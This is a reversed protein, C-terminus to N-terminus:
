FRGILGATWGGDRPRAIVVSKRDTSYSPAVFYIVVATVAAAGTLGWSVNILNQDRSVKDADAQTAMGQDRLEKFDSEASLGIKTLVISTVLGVGTAAAAIKSGLPIRRNRPGGEAPPPDTMPIEATTAPTPVALEAAKLKPIEVRRADREDGVTVTTSWPANGPARATITYTGGDIPLAKNWAGRDVADADRLVELGGVQADDLVAITLTSLRPELKAAREAALAHMQTAAENTAAWTQREAELFLGWATALQGLRERCDAQNLVTSISPDLKQSADFAACAEAYKGQTKLEQGQRFLAEAQAAAPQADAIRALAVLSAVTLITRM